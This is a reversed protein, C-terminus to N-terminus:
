HPRPHAPASDRAPQPCGGESDRHTCPVRAGGAARPTPPPPPFRPAVPGPGRPRGRPPLSCFLRLLLPCTRAPLSAVRSPSGARALPFEPPSHRPSGWPSAGVGGELGKESRRVESGKRADGTGAAEPTQQLM